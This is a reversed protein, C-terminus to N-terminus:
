PQKGAASAENTLFRQVFERAFEDVTIGPPLKVLREFDEEFHNPGAKRLPQIEYGSDTLCLQFASALAQFARWSKVKAYRLVVPKPFSERSFAPIVPNGGAIVSRVSGMIAQRDQVPHVFVPDVDVFYGADTRAVTPIFVKGERIYVKWLSLM